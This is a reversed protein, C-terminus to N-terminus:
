AKEKFKRKSWTGLMLRFALRGEHHLMPLGILTKCEECWLAQLDRTSRVAPDYQLREYRPPYVIRNLYCRHLQGSGDKQYILLLSGCKACHIQLFEAKGGRARRYKDNKFKFM